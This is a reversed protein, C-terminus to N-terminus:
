DTHTQVAPTFGYVGSRCCSGASADFIGKGHGYPSVSHDERAPERPRNVRHIPLAILRLLHEVPELCRGMSKEPLISAEDHRLHAGAAEEPHGPLLALVADRDGSIQHNGGIECRSARIRHEHRLHQGSRDSPDFERLLWGISIFNIITIFPRKSGDGAGQALAKDRAHPVRSAASM